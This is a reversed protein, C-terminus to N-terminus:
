RRSSRMASSCRWKRPTNLGTVKPRDRRRPKAINVVLRRDADHHLAYDGVLTISSAGTLQGNPNFTASRADARQQDSHRGVLTQIDVVILGEVADSIFAYRFIPAIPQEENRATAVRKSISRRRRDSRSVPPTRRDVRADTPNAFPAPSSASRSTRTASTPSTSSRSGARGAAALLYEGYLQVQNATGRTATGGRTLQGGRAQHEAFNTPIRSRRCIAATSPRRSRRTRHGCRASLRRSGAAVYIYRGMFNVQNTGLMLVSAMWANNDGRASVHCDTCQKTEKGRVTHPPHTNFANGNYGAASITPVQNLDLRPQREPGSFTVVSSSRVPAIKHGQITGDIASCSATPASCRRTTRRTCRRRTAKTTSCRSRPTSARRWTAASATRRGRRIAATARCRRTTTRWRRAQATAGRGATPRFRRQWVHRKATARTAPTITDIVQPVEWQLGEVMSRQIITQGRRVFRPTGFPTTRSAASLSQGSANPGSPMLTARAEISGHCDECAIEIAARRDGYIKGNGHVDQSFHCDVCHMGKELHIDKLHVAKQWKQPDDFPIQQGQADLLNGKQDRSFVKQFVWGHGHYDSFQANKLQPNKESLPKSSSPTAGSVAPRRKRLISGAPKTSSM